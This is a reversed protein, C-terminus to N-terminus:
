ASTIDNLILILCLSLNVISAAISTNKLQPELVVGADSHTITFVGTKILPVMAPFILFSWWSNLIIGTIMLMLLAGILLVCHYIKGGHLGLRVVVSNKGGEIDSKYDRLNNVNLVMIAMFGANIALIYSLFTLDLCILYESGLVAVLGFFIFVSLDGLGMYSYAVGITYTIAAFLALAGIVCFGLLSLWNNWFAVLLMATGFFLSAVSLVVIATKLEKITMKGQQLVSIRGRRIKNDVGSVADGYDNAYNSLIQLFVATVIILGTLLSLHWYNETGSYNVHGVVIGLLVASFSLPLTRLRAAVLWKNM